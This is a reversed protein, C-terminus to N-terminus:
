PTTSSRNTTAPATASPASASSSGVSSGGPSSAAGSSSNRPTTSAGSGYSSGSGSTTTSTDSAGQDKDCGVLGLLAVGCIIALSKKMIITKRKQINTEKRGACKLTSILRIEPPFIVVV